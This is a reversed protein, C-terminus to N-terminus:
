APAHECCDFGPEQRLRKLQAQQYTGFVGTFLCRVLPDELVDAEQIQEEIEPDFVIDNIRVYMSTLSEGSVLAAYLKAAVVETTWALPERNGPALGTASDSRRALSEIDDDRVRYFFDTATGREDYVSLRWVRPKRFYMENTPELSGYKEILGTQCYDFVTQTQAPNLAPFRRAIESTPPARLNEDFVYDVEEVGIPKIWALRAAPELGHPTLSVSLGPDLRLMRTQSLVAGVEQAFQAYSVPFLSRNYWSWSEHEFQCSSPVLFRPNLRQLQLLWEPPLQHPLAMARSPSLVELERMTQFPWLVLDWVGQACLLTLTEEDLWSDVVNLVNLGEAQVQFLSDVEADLARRPTVTMPGLAVPVDLTLRHVTKFGLEGLLDFLLEHQCYLYIPTRRDLENLSVLSCHDDHFHSIFVASFSLKRIAQYDFAIKPFAYCNVSFPNEFIPDFAIRTTGSEFIYGAHLIRSIKLAM